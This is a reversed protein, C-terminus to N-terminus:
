DARRWTRTRLAARVQPRSLEVSFATVTACPKSSATSLSSLAGVGTLRLIHQDSRSTVSIATKYSRSHMPAFLWSFHVQWAMWAM